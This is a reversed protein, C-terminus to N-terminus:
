GVQLGRRGGRGTSVVRAWASEDSEALGPFKVKVRGLKDPDTNNTVIGVVLSAGLTPHLAAGTARANAGLLDVLTHDQEGGSEFRTVYPRGEGVIHEVRTLLYTGCLPDALGKIAVSVGPRLAPDGLTEGKAVAQESTARQALSTALAQAENQDKVPAGWAYRKPPVEEPGERRPEEGPGRRHGPRRRPRQDRVHRRHRGV